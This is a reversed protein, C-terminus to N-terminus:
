TEMERMIKSIESQTKSLSSQKPPKGNVPRLHATRARDLNAGWEQLLAKCSQSMYPTKSVWAQEIEQLEDMVRPRSFIQCLATEEAYTWQDTDTRKYLKGIRSKLEGVGGGEPLPSPPKLSVPVSSSPSSSSPNGNREVNTSRVNFPRERRAEGSRKGAEVTQARRAQQKEWERVMRKQVLWQPDSNDFCAIIAPGDEAWEADSLRALRMLRQPDNLMRGVTTGRWAHCLILMYAGVQRATM